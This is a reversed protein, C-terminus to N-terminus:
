LAQPPPPPSGAVVFRWEAPPEYGFFSTFFMEFRQQAVVGLGVPGSQGADGAFVQALFWSDDGIGSDALMTSNMTGYLPSAGATRNWVSPTEPYFQLQEKTASGLWVDLNQGLDQTPTWAVEITLFTPTRDFWKIVIYRDSSVNGQCVAAQACVIFSAVNGTGCAAFRSSGTRTGCEVYGDIKQVEAFAVGSTDTLLQLKVLPQDGATTVTVQAVADAYGALAARVVHAGIAVGEFRFLGEPGTTLNQTGDLVVRAGALPRIADDVVLGELVGPSNAALGEEPAGAGSKGACGALLVLVLLGVLFASRM